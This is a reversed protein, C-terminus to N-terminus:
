GNSRRSLANVIQEMGQARSGKVLVLDGSGILERLVALAAENDEVMTVDAPNLGTAIAEQGIWRARPGVTILKQVVDAARRGVLIHGEEEYSGLELMDGLVAIRRGNGEPKLDALLNLAAIMSAPSANYTDDILTIGSMGPVMILRLQGSVDQLGAIIEDWHLGEVLGVAAAGLATHVSHRGLLPIKVHLVEGGYHFCFRIGQLGASEVQDAWLDCDPTTGYFFVRAQTQAAMARVLPDDHNLVAVGEPGPPLAQVLEAKAQAIRELTGLRELHSPGVNTVVGVHPRSIACLQAIEGLAYMGMELVVRQHRPGLTLLTLPLGIENNYNGASKLVRYRRELVSSIMEKTSTKGVSGTVGIVRPSFRTRWAAAVSQLGQLSDPVLFLTPILSTSHQVWEGTATNLINTVESVDAPVRQVIAGVAGVALAASVYDHGDAREGRLAVFLSGVQARRSDVVVDRVAVQLMDLPVPRECLASWVDALTLSTM